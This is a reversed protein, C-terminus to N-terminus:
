RHAHTQDSKGGVVENDRSQHDNRWVREEGVDAREANPVASAIAYQRASHRVGTRHQTASWNANCETLWRASMPEACGWQSPGASKMDSASAVM